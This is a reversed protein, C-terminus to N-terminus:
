CAQKRRIEPQGGLRTAVPRAWEYYIGFQALQCIRQSSNSRQDPDSWGLLTKEFDASAHSQSPVM